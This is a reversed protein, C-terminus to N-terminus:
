AQENIGLYPSYEAPPVANKGGQVNQFAFQFRYLNNMGIQVLTAPATGLTYEVGYRDRQQRFFLTGGREYVLLIDASASLAPRNDDLASFVRTITGPLTSTRYQLVTTDFWYYSANGALTAYGVFIQANQDFALSVWAAGVGPLLIFAPTNPAELWVNNGDTFVTWLQFTIGRTANGIAVGGLHVDRMGASASFRTTNRPPLFATPLPTSSLANNPMM